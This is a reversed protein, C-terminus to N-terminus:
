QLIFSNTCSKPKQIHYCISKTMLEEAQIIGNPKCSAGLRKNKALAHFFDLLAKDM